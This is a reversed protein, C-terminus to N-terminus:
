REDPRQLPLRACRVPLGGQYTPQGNLLVYGDPSCQRPDKFFLYGAILVVVLCYAIAVAVLQKEFREVHIV